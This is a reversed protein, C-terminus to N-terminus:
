LCLLDYYAELPNVCGCTESGRRCCRYAFTCRPCDTYTNCATHSISANTLYLLSLPTTLPMLSPTMISTEQRAVLGLAPNPSPSASAFSFHSLLTILPLLPTIAIAVM